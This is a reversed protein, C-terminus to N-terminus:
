YEDDDDYKEEGPEPDAASHGEDRDLVDDDSATVPSVGILSDEKCKPAVSTFRSLTAGLCDTATGVTEASQPFQKICRDFNRYHVGRAEGPAFFSSESHFGIDLLARAAVAAGRLYWGCLRRRDAETTSSLPKTREVGTPEALVLPLLRTFAQHLPGAEEWGAPAPTARCGELKLEDCLHQILEKENEELRAMGEWSGRPAPRLQWSACTGGVSLTSVPQHNADYFVFVSEPSAPCRVRGRRRVASGEKKEFKPGSAISLISEVQAASLRIGPAVLDPCLTGEKALVSCSTALEDILARGRDYAWVETFPREPFTRLASVARLPQFDRPAKQPVVLFQRMPDWLRFWAPLGGSDSAGSAPPQGAADKETSRSGNRPPRFSSGERTPTARGLSGPEAPVSRQAPAVRARAPAGSCGTELCGASCILWVYSFLRDWRM